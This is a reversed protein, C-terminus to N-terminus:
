ATIVLGGNVWRLRDFKGADILRLIVTDRALTRIQKAQAAVGEVAETVVYFEESLPMDQAEKAASLKEAAETIPALFKKIDAEFQEEAKAFADDGKLEDYEGGFVVASGVVDTSDTGEVLYQGGALKTHKFTATM